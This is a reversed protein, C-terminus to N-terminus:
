SNSAQQIMMNLSSFSQNIKAIMSDYAAFRATMIDYRDDLDKQAKTKQEELRKSEDTLSTELLKLRANSGTIYDDIKENFQTFIGKVETEKGGITKTTGKFFAMAMDPDEEYAKQLKESDLTLRGSENLSIGYKYLSNKDGDTYSLLNNLANKISRIDSDGQFVGAIKTDVDYKTDQELQDMLANFSDVFNQAEDYIAKNDRTVRIVAPSDDEKHVATLELSVGSVIDNISNTPRTIAIGNYTLKADQASQINELKLTNTQFNVYSQHTGATLGLAAIAKKSASQEASGDAGKLTVQVNGGDNKNIILKGNEVSASYGSAATNIADAVAQANQTGSNGAASLTSLDLDINGITLTGSLQGSAVSSGEITNAATKTTTKFGFDSAKAGGVSVDNGRRDNVIVQKGDSSLGINIDEELGAFDSDASVAEKIAKQIAAANSQSDAGSATPPITIDLTKDNGNKDKLTVTLDGSGSAEISGTKVNSSTLTTGFYIKNGAGTEKSNIMLQFPKSGGTKMVVGTVAGNTADTISQAVDGVTTGAAIKISYDKGGANFKLVTNTTSFVSDRSEYSTGVQNIDGTALQNVKVSIDQVPLGAGITATVGNGTVSSSRELYSSTDALKKASSNLTGFLTMIQTLSTQKDLNAQMKKTFPNIKATTEADKLKDIVDSTLVNSGIGLATITGTAM